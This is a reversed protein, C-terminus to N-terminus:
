PERWPTPAPGARRVEVIIGPQRQAYLKIVRGDVVLADDAWVVPVVIKTRPDRFPNLADLMKGINEWDPKGTPRILGALAADKKKDSWSPPIPFYAFVIVELAEDFAQRGAMADWAAARLRNEYDRTQAPTYASGFAAGARTKVVRFRPRGKGEPDGALRVALLPPSAARGGAEDRLDFLTTV